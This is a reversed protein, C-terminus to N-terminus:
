AKEGAADDGTAVVEGVGEFGAPQGQKRPQGYMGKVFMVDSPNISALAVKILVQTGAPTPVGIPGPSMPSWRRLHALRVTRNAYGDDNLLLANMEQRLDCRQEPKLILKGTAGRGLVRNLVKAADALPYVGEIV